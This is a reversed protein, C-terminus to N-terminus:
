SWQGDSPVLSDGPPLPSSLPRLAYRLHLPARVSAFLDAARRGLDLIYSVKLARQWDSASPWNWIYAMTSRTSDKKEGTSHKEVNGCFIALQQGRRHVEVLPDAEGEDLGLEDKRRSWHALLNAVSRLAAAQELVVGESSGVASDLPRNLM